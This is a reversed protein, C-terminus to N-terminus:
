AAAGTMAADWTSGAAILARWTRLTKPPMGVALAGALRTGTRYAIVFRGQAPDGDALTAEDHDRLHGYAQIKMEYQDSWFYPVPAFPRRQDPNLLNRAVAMGHEAANTRHEIRMATDFLPNHWRAVDGVGYVGPAAASYEDCVVGNTVTLGSSDLWETNPLSGIAVLVADAAIMTGDALKVGKVVGAASVIAAVSVGTRLQVGREHHAQALFLGAQEGIAAALPVSAAELMTVKVGLGRAVAAVEAGVFGAGVIVLRRGPLLRAKLALADALTRLTHVGAIGECNPLHRPRVGTAVVLGEYEVHSGDALEVTRGAADLGTAAVGLRLDLGLADIEVQERLALRDPEWQGTLIQKSLPPRDYPLCPEDGVLTIAGEYGMRRLAEATALGGASAGVIMVRNM